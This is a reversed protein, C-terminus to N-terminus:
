KSHNAINYACTTTEKVSDTHSYISTAIIIVVEFFNARKLCTVSAPQFIEGDHYPTGYVIDRGEWHSVLGMYKVWTVGHSILGLIEHEVNRAIYSHM